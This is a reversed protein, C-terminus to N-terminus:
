VLCFTEIDRIYFLTAARYSLSRLERMVILRLKCIQNTAKLDRTALKVAVEPMNSYDSM